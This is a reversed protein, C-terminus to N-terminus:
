VGKWIVKIMKFVTIKGNFFLLKITDNEKVKSNLKVKLLVSHYYHSNRKLVKKNINELSIITKKKNIYLYKNNYITKLDKDTVLLEVLNSKVVISNIVKYTRISKRMSFLILFFILIGLIFISAYLFSRSEYNKTKM